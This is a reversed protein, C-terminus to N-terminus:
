RNLALWTLVKSKKWGLRLPWAARARTVQAAEQHGLVQGPVWWPASRPGPGQVSERSDQVLHWVRLRSPVLLQLRAHRVKLYPDHTGPSRGGDRRRGPGTQLHRTRAM